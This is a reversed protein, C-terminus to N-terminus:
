PAPSVVLRRVEDLTRAARRTPPSADGPRRDAPPQRPLGAAVPWALGRDHLEADLRDAAATDGLRRAAAIAVAYCTELQPTPEHTSFVVPQLAIWLARELDGAEYALRALVSWGLASRPERGVEACWAEALRRTEEAVGLRAHAALRADLLRARAEPGTTHPLLANAYGVIKEPAGEAAAEVLSLLPRLQGADLFALYRVRQRFLAELLPLAEPARSRDLLELAQAEVAAGPLALREIEERAFSRGVEGGDTARRLHLRGEHVGDLRGRFISGAKTTVAAEERALALDLEAPQASAGPIGATLAFLLLAAPPKM